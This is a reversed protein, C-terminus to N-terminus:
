YINITNTAISLQSIDRAKLSTGVENEFTGKKTMEHTEFIHTGLSQILSYYAIDYNSKVHMCNDNNICTYEDITVWIPDKSFDNKFFLYFFGGIEINHFDNEQSVRDEAYNAWTAVASNSM